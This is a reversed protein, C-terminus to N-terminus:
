HQEEDSAAGSTAGARQEATRNVRPYDEKATRYEKLKNEYEPTGPTPGNTPGQMPFDHVHKVIAPDVQGRGPNQGQNPQQQGQSQQNAPAGSGQPQAQAGEQKVANANQQGAASSQGAQGQNQNGQQQQQKMKARYQRERGIFKQSWETLKQRANTNEQSGQPNNNFITWFNQMILRYKQKEDEPLCQLKLIDDPRLLQQGQQQGGSAQQPQSDSM